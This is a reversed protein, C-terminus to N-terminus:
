EAEFLTSRLACQMRNRAYLATPDGRMSAPYNSFDRSELKYPMRSSFDASFKAIYILYLFNNDMANVVIEWIQSM